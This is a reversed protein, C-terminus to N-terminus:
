ETDALARCAVTNAYIEFNPAARGDSWFVVPLGTGVGLCPTRPDGWAIQVEDSVEECGEVSVGRALIVNRSDRRDHWAMMVGSATEVVTPAVSAEADDTVRVDSACLMTGDRVANFYIEMNRDGESMDRQDAWGVLVESGNWFAAINRCDGTSSSVELPETGASLDMTRYSLMVHGFGGGM